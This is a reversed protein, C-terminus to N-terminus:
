IMKKALREAKEFTNGSKGIAGMALEIGRQGELMKEALVALLDIQAKKQVETWSNFVITGKEINKRLSNLQQYLIDAEINAKYLLQNASFLIQWVGKDIRGDWTSAIKNAIKREDTM